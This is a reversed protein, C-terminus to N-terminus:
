SITLISVRQYDQLGRIDKNISGCFNLVLFLSYKRFVYGSGASMCQCTNVTCEEHVISYLM